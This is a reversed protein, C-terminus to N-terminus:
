AHVKDVLIGVYDVNNDMMSKERSHSPTSRSNRDVRVLTLQLLVRHDHDACGRRRGTPGMATTTHIPRYSPISADFRRSICVEGLTSTHQCNAAGAMPDLTGYTVADDGRGVARGECLCSEAGGFQTCKGSALADPPTWPPRGSRLDDNDHRRGDCWCSISSCM